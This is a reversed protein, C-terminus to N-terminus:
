AAHPQDYSFEPRSAPPSRRQRRWNNPSVGVHRRFLNSFHPQDSLGCDLAIRALPEDTTLMLRQTREIRKQVIYSHPSLGFSTRFARSFYSTSLRAEAAIEGMRITASLHREIYAIVKRIQWPALGGTRIEITSGQM